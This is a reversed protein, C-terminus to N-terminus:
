GKKIIQKKMRFVKSKLTSVSINLLVSIEQYSYGYYEKAVIIAKDTTSFESLLDDLQNKILLKVEPTQEDILLTEIFSQDNLLDPRKKKYYDLLTNKAGKTLWSKLYEVDLVSQPQTLIKTFLEQIIDEAIQEDKSLKILFNRLYAYHENYIEEIIEFVNKNTM